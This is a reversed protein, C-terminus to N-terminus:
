KIGDLGRAYEELMKCKREIENVVDKISRHNDDKDYM